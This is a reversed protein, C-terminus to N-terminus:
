SENTALRRTEMARETSRAKRREVRLEELTPQWWGRALDQPDPPWRAPWAEVLETHVPKRWAAWVLTVGAASVDPYYRKLIADEVLEGAIDAFIVAGQHTM